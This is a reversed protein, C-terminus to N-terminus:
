SVEAFFSLYAVFAPCLVSELVRATPPYERVVAEGCVSHSSICERERELEMGRGRGICVGEDVSWEM